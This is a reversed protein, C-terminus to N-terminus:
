FGAAEAAAAVRLQDDYLAGQQPEIFIRLDVQGVSTREPAGAGPPGGAACSRSATCRVVTTPAGAPAAVPSCASGARGARRLRTITVIAGSPRLSSRRSTRLLSVGMSRLGGHIRVRARVPGCYVSSLDSTRVPPSCVTQSSAPQGLM